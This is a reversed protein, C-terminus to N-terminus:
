KTPRFYRTTMQSAVKHGLNFGQVLSHRYHFGAYIRAWFVENELDQTSSFTHSEGNVTSTVTFNVKSNGFFDKLTGALAGTVCGHAAPYEPHNPTAALPSWTTDAITDPNGDIDGNRIATIPRWFSFYYKANMCGIFSDAYATWVEAFLRATDTTSLQQQVVLGRLARAYQRATHETWFLGIQKQQETRVTSNAAGLTKTLNYDDAWQQSDLPTPGEDPLFQSASTMTLPQMQSVFPTQPAAFAPPTKIWVGPVPSSPYTYNYAGFRGDNARMALFTNAASTGVTIGDTKPQGNPILALAALYQTTLASSQDPFLAILTNYAASAVAADRSAGAPASIAPGYFEYGGDIANVANYIALHVYALYLGTGGATVSAPSITQNGALATTVAIADWDAVSNQAMVPSPLLLAVIALVALTLTTLKM